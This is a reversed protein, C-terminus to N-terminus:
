TTMAIVTLNAKKWWAAYAIDFTRFAVGYDRGLSQRLVALANSVDHYQPIAFDVAANLIEPRQQLRLTLEKRLRTKGIGGVGYFILVRHEQPKSQKDALAQDFVTVFGERDTFQRATSPRSGGLKHRPKLPM